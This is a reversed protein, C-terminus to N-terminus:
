HPSHLFHSRSTAAITATAKSAQTADSAHAESGSLAIHLNDYENGTQKSIFAPFPPVRKGTGAVGHSERGVCM